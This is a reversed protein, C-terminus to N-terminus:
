PDLPAGTATDIPFAYPTAAGRYLVDADSGVFLQTGIFSLTAFNVASTPSLATPEYFRTDLTGTVLDRKVLNSILFPSGTPRFVGGSYLSVGDTTLSEAVVEPPGQQSGFAADLTGSLTDVKILGSTSVGRYTNFNGGVYLASGSALLADVIIASAGVGPPFSSAAGSGQTFAQDVLGTSADVKALNGATSGAYTQFQGGVCLAPGSAALARVPGDTLGAFAPDSTGDVLDVKMVYGFNSREDGGGAYLSGQHLLLANLFSPAGGARAFTTDILGSSADVKALYGVRTGQYETFNGGVYLSDGNLVLAGVSAGPQPLGSFSADLQGTSVTFKALNAIQEGGYTTVAGGAVLASATAALASVRNNAGTAHTFATDLDGTTADIKALFNAPVGMYSTFDGGVYLASGALALADVGYNFGMQKTFVADTVGTASNLKALQTTHDYAARGVYISDGAALITRVNTYQAVNRTFAADVAGTASNVKAFSTAVGGYNQFTGAVYLDSGSAALALVAGGNSSSPGNFNSDVAGTNIDLKALYTAAVGNIHSFGAGVYVSGGAVVVTSVGAADSGSGVSFQPDLAGTTANIKVVANAATGRYSVFNGGVFLNDGSVALSTVSFGAEPGFGGGATFTEDLVCTAADIKALKGVSRGNYLNFNGGVYISNGSAVVATVTGDLFGTGLDCGLAPNGSSPDALLLHPASYPNAANFLGGLYLNTGDNVSAWVPGNVRIRLLHFKAVATAGKSDTVQVVANGSQPGVTYVGQPTLSGPGSTLTYSYPPAGRQGSVQLVQGSSATLTASAPFIALDSVSPASTGTGVASGGGSTGADGSGAGPTGGGGSGCATILCLCFSGILAPARPTSRNM